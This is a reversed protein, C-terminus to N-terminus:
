FFGAKTIVRVALPIRHGTCTVVTHSGLVPAGKRTAIPSILTTRVREIVAATVRTAAAVWGAPVGLWAAALATTVLVWPVPNTISAILVARGNAFWLAKVAAAAAIIVVAAAVNVVTAAVNVVTAAVKVIAAAVRSSWRGQGDRALIAFETKFTL